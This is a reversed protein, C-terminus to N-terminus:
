GVEMLTYYLIQAELDVAPRSALRSDWFIKRYVGNRTAM